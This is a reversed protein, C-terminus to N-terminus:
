FALLWEQKINKTELSYCDIRWACRLMQLVNLYNPSSKSVFYTLCDLQSPLPSLSLASIWPLSCPVCSLIESRSYISFTKWSQTRLLPSMIKQMRLVASYSSLLPSVLLTMTSCYFGKRHTCTKVLILREEHNGTASLSGIPDEGEKGRRRGRGGGGDGGEEWRGKGEWGWGGCDTLGDKNYETNANHRHAPKVHPPWPRRQTPPDLHAGLSSEKAKRVQGRASWPQKTAM